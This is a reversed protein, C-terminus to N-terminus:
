ADPLVRASMTLNIGPAIPLGIASAKTWLAVPDKSSYSGVVIGPAETQDIRYDSDLAEATVGWLTRGIEQNAPPVFLLEGRPLLYHPSGDFALVQAEYTVMPPLGFSRFLAEVADLTVIQQTSGSPLTMAKITENRMLTFLVDDETMIRAPKFGNTDKYIKVWALLDALPDSGATDWLIPATQTHNAARGFDAQLILGNEEITVKGTSLLEGRAYEMRTHIALAMEVADDEIAARIRPNNLNRLKLREYEGLKKKESIPPLEGSINELRYARGTIPSEADWARFQAMRNLGGQGLQARWDIEDVLNDPLFQNLVYQNEPLDALAERVYGTLEAADIYTDDLLM